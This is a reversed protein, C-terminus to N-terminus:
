EKVFQCMCKKDNPCIIGGCIYCIDNKIEDIPHKCNWCHTDRTLMRSYNYFYEMESSGRNYREHSPSHIVYEVTLFTNNTNFNTGESIRYYEVKKYRGDLDKFSFMEGRAM